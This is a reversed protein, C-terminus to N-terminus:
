RGPWADSPFFFGQKGEKVSLCASFISYISASPPFWTSKKHSEPDRLVLERFDGGLAQLQDSLYLGEPVYSHLLPAFGGSDRCFCM